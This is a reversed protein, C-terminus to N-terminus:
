HNSFEREAQKLKECAYEKCHSPRNERPILCGTSGLYQCAYANIGREVLENIMWENDSMHVILPHFLPEVGYQDANEHFGDCWEEFWYQGSPYSGGNECSLYILCCEGGCQECVEPNYYETSM